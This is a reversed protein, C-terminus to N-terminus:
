PEEWWVIWHVATQTFGNPMQVESIPSTTFTNLLTLNFSRPTHILIWDQKRRAIKLILPIRPKLLVPMRLTSFHLLSLSLSAIFKPCWRLPFNRTIWFKVYLVTHTYFYWIHVYKKFKFAYMCKLIKPM